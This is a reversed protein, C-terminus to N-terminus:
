TPTVERIKDQSEQLTVMLMANALERDITGSISGSLTGIVGPISPELPPLDLPNHWKKTLAQKEQEAVTAATPIQPIEDTIIGDIVCEFPDKCKDLMDQPTVVRSIKM